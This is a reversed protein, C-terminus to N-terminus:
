SINLPSYKNPNVFKYLNNRSVTNYCRARSILNCLTSIIIEVKIDNLIIANKM